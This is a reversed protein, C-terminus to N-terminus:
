AAGKKEAVEKALEDVLKKDIKPAQRGAPRDPGDATEEGIRVPDSAPFTAELAEDLEKELEAKRKKGITATMAFIRERVSARIQFAGANPPTGPGPPPSMLFGMRRSPHAQRFARATNLHPSPAGPLRAGRVGVAPRSSGTGRQAAGIAVYPQERVFRKTAALADEATEGAAKLAKQGEAAVTEAAEGAKQKLGQITDQAERTRAEATSQYSEYSQAM